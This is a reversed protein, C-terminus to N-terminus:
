NAPSSRDYLTSCSVAQHRMLQVLASPSPEQAKQDQSRSQQSAAGIPSFAKKCKSMVGDDVRTSKTDFKLALKLIHAPPDSWLSHEM